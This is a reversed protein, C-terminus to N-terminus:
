KQNPILTLGALLNRDLFRDNKVCQVYHECHKNKSVEFSIVESRLVGHSFTVNLALQTIVSNTPTVKLQYHYERTTRFLQNILKLEIYSCSPPAGDWICSGYSRGPSELVAFSDWTDVEPAPLPPCIKASYLFLLKLDVQCFTTRKVQFAHLGPM